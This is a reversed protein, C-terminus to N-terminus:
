TSGGPENSQPKIAQQGIVKHIDAEIGLLTADTPDIDKAMLARVRQRMRHVNVFDDGDWQVRTSLASRLNEWHEAVERVDRAFLVVPGRVVHEVYNAARIIHHNPEVPPREDLVQRTYHDFRM